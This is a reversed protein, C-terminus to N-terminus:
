EDVFIAQWAQAIDQPSHAFGRSVILEPVGLRPMHCRAEVINNSSNLRLFFCDYKSTDKIKSVDFLDNPNIEQLLVKKRQTIFHNALVLTDEESIPCHIFKPILKVLESVNKNIAYKSLKLFDKDTLSSLKYELSSILSSQEQTYLPVIPSLSM